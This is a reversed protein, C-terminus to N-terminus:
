ATLNKFYAINKDAVAAATFQDLIRQRAARGMQVGLEPNQLLAVIANAMAAHDTPTVTYGTKQPVMLEHAWGINSTVLAKEMAMSELWTMPFAEAFSPLVVVAAQAIHTLIAEYPLHPIHTFSARAADSMLEECMAVTSQRQQIDPNDKGIFTLSAEPFAEKVRNFAQALELVGKKRLVTGFYLLSGARQDTHNPKFKEIDVGNYLTTISQNLGFLQKTVQATFQSVTIIQDAQQLAKKEFFFNKKKQPRDELHCFYADTGHLRIVLPCKLNMFATIGTWDAAEIADIGSAVVQKNVYRQILKRYRYWGLFPFKQHKILHFNIGDEEFVADEQASYVFISVEIGAGIYANALNKISTGIGASRQVRPHPYESTLFALHM